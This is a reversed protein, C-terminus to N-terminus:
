STLATGDMWLDSYKKSMYRAFFLRLFFVTISTGTCWVIGGRIQSSTTQHIKLKQGTNKTQTCTGWNKNKEDGM